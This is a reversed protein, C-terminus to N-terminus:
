RAIENLITTSQTQPEFGPAAAISDSGVIVCTCICGFTHLDHVPKHQPNPTNMATTFPPSLHPIFTTNLGIVHTTFISIYVLSSHNILDVRRPPLMKFFYYFFLYLFFYLFISLTSIKCCILNVAVCTNNQISSFFRCARFCGRM